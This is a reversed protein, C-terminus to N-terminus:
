SHVMHDKHTCLISYRTLQVLYSQPSNNVSGGCTQKRYIAIYLLVQALLWRIEFQCTVRMSALLYAVETYSHDKMISAM